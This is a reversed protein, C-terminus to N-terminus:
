VNGNCNNWGKEEKKAKRRGMIGYMVMVICGVMGKRKKKKKTRRKLFNNLLRPSYIFADNERECITLGVIFKILLVWWKHLILVICKNITRLEQIIV